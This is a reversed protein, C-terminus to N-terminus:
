RRVKPTTILAGIAGLAAGIMLLILRELYTTEATGM